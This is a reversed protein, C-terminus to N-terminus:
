WEHNVRFKKERCLLQRLRSGWRLPNLFQIFFGRLFLHANGAVKGHQENNAAALAGAQDVLRDGAAKRFQERLHLDDVESTLKVPRLDFFNGCGQRCREAFTVM